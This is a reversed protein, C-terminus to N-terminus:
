RRWRRWWPPPDPEHAPLALLAEVEGQLRDVEARLNNSREMWMAAAQEAAGAREREERLLRELADLAADRVPAVPRHEPTADTEVTSAVTEESTEDHTADPLLVYVRGAVRETPLTGRTVRQRVATETLGLTVAAQPITLRRSV